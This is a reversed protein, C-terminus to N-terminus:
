GSQIQFKMDVTLLLSLNLKHMLQRHYQITTWLKRRKFNEGKSTQNEQNRLSHSFFFHSKSNQPLNYMHISVSATTHCKQELVFDLAEFSGM